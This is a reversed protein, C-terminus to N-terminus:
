CDGCDVPLKGREALLTCANNGGTKSSLTAHEIILEFAPKAEATAPKIVFFKSGDLVTECRSGPPGVNRIIPM